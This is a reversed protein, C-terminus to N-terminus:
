DSNFHSQIPLTASIAPSASWLESVLLGFLWRRTKKLTFGAQRLAPGHQPLSRVGLGTLWGFALYLAGIVPRAVLCGFWGPPVAFESIVWVANPHVAGRLATALSQVEETTLCDLFFHTVVLDCTPTSPQWQRADALHARVRGAQTGARRVLAKLMAPSADVADIQVTANAELLRAAFRGDGDGIVLARRRTHLEDLFACRCWWLWPGFTVLEVWRYLTALRDFNPAV